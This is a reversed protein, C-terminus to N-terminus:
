REGRVPPVEVSLIGRHGLPEDGVQAVDVQRHGIVGPLQVEERARPSQRGPVALGPEGEEGGFAGGLLVHDPHARRGALADVEDGEPGGRGSVDILERAAECAPTDPQGALRGRQGGGAAPVAEAEEVVLAADDLDARVDGDAPVAPDLGALRNRHPQGM